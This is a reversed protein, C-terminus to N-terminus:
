ELVDARRSTSTTKALNTAKTTTTTTANRKTRGRRHLRTCGAM